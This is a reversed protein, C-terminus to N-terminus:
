TIGSTRNSTMSQTILSHADKFCGLHWSVQVSACKSGCHVCSLDISSAWDPDHHSASRERRAPREDSNTTGSANLSGAAEAEKDDGNKSKPKSGEESKASSNKAAEWEEDEEFNVDNAVDLFDEDHESPKDETETEKPPTKPEDEDGDEEDNGGAKSRQSSESLKLRAQKIKKIYEKSRSTQSTTRKMILSSRLDPRRLVRSSGM